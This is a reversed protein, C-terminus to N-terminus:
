ERVPAGIHLCLAKSTKRFDLNSFESIKFLKFHSVGKKIRYKLAKQLYHIIEDGMPSTNLFIPLYNSSYTMM